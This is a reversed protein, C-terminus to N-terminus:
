EPQTSGGARPAEEVGEVEGIQEVDMFVVVSGVDCISSLGFGTDIGEGRVCHADRAYLARINMIFRPTLTCIPVAQIILLVVYGWGGAPLKGTNALIATLNYQFASHHFTRDARILKIVVPFMSTILRPCVCPFLPCGAQRALERVSQAAVAKDYPVDPTVGKRIAYGGLYM